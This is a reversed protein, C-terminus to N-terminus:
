HIGVTSAAEVVALGRQRPRTIVRRWSSGDVWVGNVLVITGVAQSSVTMIVSEPLRAASTPM